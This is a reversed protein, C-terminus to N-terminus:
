LDKFSVELDESRNVVTVIALPVSCAVLGTGLEFLEDVKSDM